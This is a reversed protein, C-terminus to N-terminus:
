DNGTAPPASDRGSVPPPPDVSPSLSEVDIALTKLLAANAVTDVIDPLTRDAWEARADLGRSKLISVIQSKDVDM